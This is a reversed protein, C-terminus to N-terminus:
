DQLSFIETRGDGFISIRRKKDRSECSIEFTHSTVELVPEISADINLEGEKILEELDRTFANHSDFYEHELYYLKRLEWKRYEDDPIEFSENGETFFVFGWLEPYHINILGTPAWVWNDEPLVQGTKPDTCKEYKGDTVQTTWQVRSFNVRWYDGASPAKKDKAAEKLVSFPMVVEVMWRKNEANPNNLEGDIHVASKYGRIDWHNIPIGNDRYPKTLLLDWITNKANMEFEYYQHTDSDPDIFIEFDNDYFIVCDREELTAWIEDGELVAGFYFNEDDWLMKARTKFRPEKKDKGEIDVFYETFPADDWFPKEINGDLVFPKVARKCHYVPPCFDIKTKPIRAM